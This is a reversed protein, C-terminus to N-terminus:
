QIHQRVIAAAIGSLEPTVEELSPRLFPFRVHRKALVTVFGLELHKAYPRPLGEGAVVTANGAATQKVVISGVLGGHQSAPFGGTVGARKSYQIWHRPILPSRWIVGGKGSTLNKITQQKVREAMAMTVPKRASEMGAGMKRVREAIRGIGDINANIRFEAM